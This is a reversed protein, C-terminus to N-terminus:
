MLSGGGTEVGAIDIMDKITISLEFWKTSSAIRKSNGRV